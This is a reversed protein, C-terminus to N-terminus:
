KFNAGNVVPGSPSFSAPFVADPIDGGFGPLLNAGSEIRLLHSFSQELIPVQDGLAALSMLVDFPDASSLMLDIRQLSARELIGIFSSFVPDRGQAELGPAGADFSMCAVSAYLNNAARLM